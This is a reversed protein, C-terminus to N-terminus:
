KLLKKPTKKVDLTYEVYTGHTKYRTTFNVREKKIKYGQQIFEAVRTSLKSCGTATFAKIWNIPQGKKLLLMLAEKQSKPKM